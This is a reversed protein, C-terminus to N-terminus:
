GHHIQRALPPWPLNGSSTFFPRTAKTIATATQSTSVVEATVATVQLFGYIRATSAMPHPRIRRQIPTPPVSIYQKRSGIRPATNFSRKSQLNFNM